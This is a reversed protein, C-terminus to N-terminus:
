SANFSPERKELFARRGEDLDASAFLIAQADAEARLMEELDRPMRGVLAKAYGNSLPAKRALEQALALAEAAAEGAPVIMEALGWREAQEADFTRGTMMAFKARGLGMRLPLSWTAGLDPVLGLRNFSCTFKATESAVVIDCLAALSLGAGIAHGEVAAIIPKEGGVVLRVLRHVQAMRRRGAVSTIDAMSTIDGGACFHAGVGTIVIARCSEEALAAELREILAARLPLSLANRRAPLNLSLCTVAGDCAELVFDQGPASM